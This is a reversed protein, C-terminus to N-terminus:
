RWYLWGFGLGIEDTQTVCLLHALSGFNDYELLSGLCLCIGGRRAGSADRCASGRREREVGAGARSSSLDAAAPEEGHECVGGRREREVAADARRREGGDNLV